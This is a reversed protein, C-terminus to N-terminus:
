RDPGKGGGGLAARVARLQRVHDDDHERMMELVDGLTVERGEFVGRRALEGASLRGLAAVNAARAAGFAALAEAFDEAGYDREAAVRSGDFGELEPRDEALLRRIRVGYGERELDRLHCAQEVFSFEVGAARLRLEATSLGGALEAVVAPTRALAAVVDSYTTDAM